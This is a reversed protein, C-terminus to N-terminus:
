AKQKLLLGKQFQDISQSIAIMEKSPFQKITDGTKTDVVKILTRDSSQDISFEVGTNAQLMAQNVKDLASQLQANTPQSAPQAAQASSTQTNASQTGTAQPVAVQPLEVTASGTTPASVSVVPTGANGYSAPPTPVTNGSLNQILM